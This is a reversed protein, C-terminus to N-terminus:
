EGVRGAAPELARPTPNKTKGKPTEPEAQDQSWQLGSYREVLTPVNRSSAVIAKRVYVFRVAPSVLTQIYHKALAEAEAEDDSFTEIQVDDIGRAQRLRLDWLMM